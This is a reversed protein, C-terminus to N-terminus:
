FRATRGGSDISSAAVRATRGTASDRVFVDFAHNHDGPVLNDALSTFVVFRGNASIAPSYSDANSLTGGDTAAWRPARITWAAPAATSVRGHKM